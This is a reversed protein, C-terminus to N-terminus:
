HGTWAQLPIAKGKVRRLASSLLIYTESHNEVNLLAAVKKFVSSFFVCPLFKDELLSSDSDM